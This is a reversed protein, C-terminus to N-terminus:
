PNAMPAIFSKLFAFFEKLFILLGVVGDKILVLLRLLSLSPPLLLLKILSIKLRLLEIVLTVLPTVIDIVLRILFGIM